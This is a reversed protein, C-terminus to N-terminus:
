KHSARSYPRFAPSEFGSTAASRGYALALKFARYLQIRRANRCPNIQRLVVGLSRRDHTASEVLGLRLRAPLSIRNPSPV